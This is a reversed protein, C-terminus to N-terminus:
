VCRSAYLLGAPPTTKGERIAAKPFPFEFGETMEEPITLPNDEDKEDAGAGISGRFACWIRKWGM